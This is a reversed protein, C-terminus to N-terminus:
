LEWWPVTRLLHHDSGCPHGYTRDEGLLEGHDGTVIVTADVSRFPLLADFVWALNRRYATQLLGISLWHDPDYLMPVPHRILQDPVEEADVDVAEAEPNARMVPVPPDSWPYPGHPQIYHVYLRDAEGVHDLAIDTTTKPSVTPIGNFQRWESEWVDVREAFAEPYHRRQMPSATICTVDSDDIADIFAGLWQKTCSAPSSVPEGYDYREAWIDWRVADMVLLIDWDTADLCDLQDPANTTM